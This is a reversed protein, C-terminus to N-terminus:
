SVIRVLTLWIIRVDERVSAKPIYRLNIEIKAPMIEDIYTKEPDHSQALLASEEFYELSAYDTIGPKVTLVGRQHNDYLDVYRKVEPRPGVLSMDGKWVNILQPLEDLKYKRIFHGIPTIRPDRGVTLQAGQPANKLMSRFKWMQFPKGLLGIREQWYFPSHGDQLFILLALLLGPILLILLGVSSLVWDLVRKM